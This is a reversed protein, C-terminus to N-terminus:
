LSCCLSWRPMMAVALQWPSVMALRSNTLCRAFSQRTTPRLHTPICSESLTTLSVSLCFFFRVALAADLADHYRFQKLYQEYEALKVRKNSQVRFDEVGPKSSQGRMFYAYTGTRFYEKKKQESKLLSSSVERVRWEVAGSSFGVALNISDRQELNAISMLLHSVLFFRPWLLCLLLLRVSLDFSLVPSPYYLSHVLSYSTTDYIQLSFQLFLTLPYAHNTPLFFFFPALFSVKVFHDLGGSM